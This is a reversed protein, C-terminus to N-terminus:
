SVKKKRRDWALKKFYAIRAAEAAAVRAEESAGNFKEPLRRLHYELSNPGVARAARTREERNVTSAWQASAMYSALQSREAPTLAM